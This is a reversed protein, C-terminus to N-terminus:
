PLSRILWSNVEGYTPKHGPRAPPSVDANGAKGSGGTPKSTSRASIGCPPTSITSYRDFLMPTVPQLSERWGFGRLRLTAARDLPGTPRPHVSHMKLLLAAPALLVAPNWENKACAPPDPALMRLRICLIPPSAGDCIANVSSTRSSKLHNATVPAPRM